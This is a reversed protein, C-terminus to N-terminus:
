GPSGRDPSRPELRIVRRGFRHADLSWAGPGLLALAITQGIAALVFPLEGRTTFLNAVLTLALLLAATRAGFGAVLSLILAAVPAAVPWWGGPLPSLRALAPYALAASSLRLLLLAAGPAGDPYRLMVWRPYGPPTQPGAESRPNERVGNPPLM